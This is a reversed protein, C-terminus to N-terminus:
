NAISVATMRMIRQQWEAEGMLDGRWKYYLHTDELLMM